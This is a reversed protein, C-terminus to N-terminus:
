RQWLNAARLRRAQAQLMRFMVRPHSLLFPEVDSMGLVLCRLPSLAVVDAVPEEDLLVSVEGFYDGRGLRAREQGDIVVGAEGEVIVYLGGGSFGQRLIRQGQSFFEEEFTHAAEQLEPGTLDSFLLFGALVDAMDTDTAM